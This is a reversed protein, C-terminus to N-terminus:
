FSISFIMRKWLNTKKGHLKFLKRNQYWLTALLSFVSVFILFRYIAFVKWLFCGIMIFIVYICIWIVLFLGTTDTKKLVITKVNLHWSTVTLPTKWDSVKKPLIQPQFKLVWCCFFCSFLYIATWSLSVFLCVNIFVKPSRNWNVCISKWQHM